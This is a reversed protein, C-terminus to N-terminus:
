NEAGKLWMWFTEEDVFSRSREKIWMQCEGMDGTSKLVIGKSPLDNVSQQECIVALDDVKRHMIPHEILGGITPNKKNQSGYLYVPDSASRLLARATNWETNNSLNSHVSLRPIMLATVIVLAVGIHSPRLRSWHRTSKVLRDLSISLAMGMAGILLLQGPLQYYNHKYYLNAFVIWPLGIALSCPIYYALTLRCAAVSYFFAGLLFALGIATAYYIWGGNIANLDNLFHRTIILKYFGISLRQEIDGFYFRPNLAFGGSTAVGMVTSRIKEATYAGALGAISYFVLATRPVVLQRSKIAILCLHMAIAFVLFVFPIPSKILVAAIWLLAFGIDLSLGSIIGSICFIALAISLLDPLPTTYYHIFLPSLVMLATVPSSSSLSFRRVISAISAATIVFAASNVIKIGASSAIGSLKSIGIITAQYIPIDYVATRSFFNSLPSLGKFGEFGLIQSYVDSQRWSHSGHVGLYSTSLIHAVFLGILIWELISMNRIM